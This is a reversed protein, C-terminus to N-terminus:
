RVSQKQVRIIKFIRCFFRGFGANEVNVGCKRETCTDAERSETTSHFFYCTVTMEPIVTVKFNWGPTDCIM